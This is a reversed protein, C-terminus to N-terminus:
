AGKARQLIHKLVASVQDPTVPDVATVIYEATSGYVM